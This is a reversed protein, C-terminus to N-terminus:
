AREVKIDVKQGGKVDIARGVIIGNSDYNLYVEIPMGAPRGAPM